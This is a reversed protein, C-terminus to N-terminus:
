HNARFRGSRGLDVSPPLRRCKLRDRINKLALERIRDSNCVGSKGIEIIKLAVIEAIPHTPDDLSLEQLADEFAVVIAWTAEPGFDGHRLLRYILM